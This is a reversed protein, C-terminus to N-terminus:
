PLIKGLDADNKLDALHNEKEEPYSTVEIFTSDSRKWGPETKRM